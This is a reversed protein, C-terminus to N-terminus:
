EDEEVVGPLEPASGDILIISARAMGTPDLYISASHLRGARSEELAIELARQFATPTALRVTSM